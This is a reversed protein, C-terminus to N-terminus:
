FEALIIIVLILINRILVQRQKATQMRYVQVNPSELAVSVSCRTMSIVGACSWVCLVCEIIAAM